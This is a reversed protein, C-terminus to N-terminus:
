KKLKLLFYYSSTYLILLLFFYYRSISGNEQFLITPILSTLYALNITISTKYNSNTFKKSKLLFNYLLMHLHLNDPNLPSKKKVTKRIFSFFVEYSLYFLISAFFFSSTQPNLQHTKIANIAILSGCLYSGADGLFMKAKPFNFLLFSFMIIIQFTLILVMDHHQSTLNVGLLIFNIILFHIVLLGNYGDILNAGNIIFLFCLLVFCVQFINHELLRNLFGFGSNTIQISFINICFILVTIMLTLRVSPNIKIKIDDLFGLFFLVLSVVFYDKLFIDFKLFYFLFFLSLSIFIAVGGARATPTKHFAQPKLFDKDLLLGKFFFISYKSVFFTILFSTLSFIIFYILNLELEM